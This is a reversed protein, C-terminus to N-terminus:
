RGGSDNTCRIEYRVGETEIVDYKPRTGIARLGVRELLTKTNVASISGPDIPTCRQEDSCGEFTITANAKRGAAAVVQEFTMGSPIGISVDGDKVPKQDVVLAPPNVLFVVVFFAAASGAKITFGGVGGGVDFFGPLAAGFGAAAIALVVRFVFVQFNTPEKIVFAIVLLAVLFAIGTIASLLVTSTLKSDPPKENM